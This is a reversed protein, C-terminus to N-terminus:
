NESGRWPQRGQPVCVYASMSFFKAHFTSELKEGMDSSGEDLEMESVHIDDRPLRLKCRPAAQECRQRVKERELFGLGIELVGKAADRLCFFCEMRIYAKRGGDTKTCANLMSRYSERGRDIEREREREREQGQQLREV